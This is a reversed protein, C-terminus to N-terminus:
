IDLLLNLSLLYSILSNHSYFKIRKHVINFISLKWEKLVNCECEVCKNANVDDIVLIM